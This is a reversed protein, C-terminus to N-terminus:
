TRPLAQFGHRQWPELQTTTQRCRDTSLSTSLLRKDPKATESVLRQCRSDRDIEPVCGAILMNTLVVVSPKVDGELWNVLKKVEGSQPGDAGRLMSVTLDGLAAASTKMARSAVWRLLRANDLWGTISRAAILRKALVLHLTQRLFLSPEIRFPPQESPLAAFSLGPQHYVRAAFVAHLM